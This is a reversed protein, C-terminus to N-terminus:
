AKSEEGSEKSRVKREALWVAFHIPAYLTLGIIIMGMGSPDPSLIAGAVMAALFIYKLNNKVTEVEIVGHTVLIYIILPAEFVLGTAIALQVAFQLVEAISVRIIVQYGQPAFYPYLMLTVRYALPAIIFLALAVGGLFLLIFAFGYRKVMMKEHPYLAPEVYAWIERVIVPSALIVGLLLASYLIIQFMEFTDAPMIYVPYKKGLVYVQRPVILSVLAEPLKVVLPTWQIGGVPILGGLAESGEDSYKSSHESSNSHLGRCKLTVLVETSNTEIRMISCELLNLRQLIPESANVRTTANHEEHPLWPIPPHPVHILSAIGEVAELPAAAAIISAIAVAFIIRRLRVSLEEIHEWISLEEESSEGTMFLGSWM